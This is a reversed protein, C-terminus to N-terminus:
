IVQGYRALSWIRSHFSNYNDTQTQRKSHNIVHDFFFRSSFSSVIPRLMAFLNVAYPTGNRKEKKKKEGNSVLTRQIRHLEHLELLHRVHSRVHNCHVSASTSRLKDDALAPYVRIYTSSPWTWRLAKTFTAHRDFTEGTRRDAEKNFDTTQKVSVTKFLM